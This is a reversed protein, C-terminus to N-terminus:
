SNLSASKTVFLSIAISIRVNEDLSDGHALDYLLVVIDEQM